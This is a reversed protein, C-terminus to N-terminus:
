NNSMNARSSALIRETEKSHWNMTHRYDKHDNKMEIEKIFGLKEKLTCNKLKLKKM